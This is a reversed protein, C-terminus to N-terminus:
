VKLSRLIEVIGAVDVNVDRTIPSRGIEIGIVNEQGILSEMLSIRMDSGLLVM